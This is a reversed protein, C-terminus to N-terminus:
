LFFGQKEICFKSRIGDDRGQRQWVHKVKNQHNKHRIVM